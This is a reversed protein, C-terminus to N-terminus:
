VKAKDLLTENIKLRLICIRCKPETWVVRHRRFALNDMQLLFVWVEREGAVEELEEPLSPDQIKEMQSFM